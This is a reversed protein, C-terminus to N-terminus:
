KLVECMNEIKQKTKTKKSGFLKTTEPTELELKYGDKIKFILKNIRNIYIQISPYM